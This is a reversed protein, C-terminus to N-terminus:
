KGLRISPALVTPDRNDCDGREDSEPYSDRHCGYESLRDPTTTPLRSWINERSALFDSNSSDISDHIGRWRGVLPKSCAEPEYACVGLLNRYAHRRVRYKGNTEWGTRVRDSSASPHCHHGIANSTTGRLFRNVNPAPRCDVDSDIAYAVLIGSGPGLREDLIRLRCPREAALVARGKPLPDLSSSPNFPCAAVTCYVMRVRVCGLHFIGGKSHPRIRSRVGRRVARLQGGNRPDIGSHSVGLSLGQVTRWGSSTLGALPMGAFIPVAFLNHLRGERTLTAPGSDGTGDGGPTVAPIGGVPDPVFVGSGILGIDAAAVLASVVRPGVSRRPCLVFSSTSGRVLGRRCGSVSMAIGPVAGTRFCASGTSIPLHADANVTGSFVDM